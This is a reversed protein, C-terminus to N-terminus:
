GKQTFIKSAYTGDDSELSVAGKPTISYAAVIDPDLGAKIAQKPTLLGPRDINVQMLQSMQRAQHEDKWVTRAQGFSLRCYPVHQGGILLTLAQEELGSKRARLQVEAKRLMDLELGIARSSMTLPTSEYAM